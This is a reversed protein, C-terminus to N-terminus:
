RVFMLSCVGYLIYLISKHRVHFEILLVAAEVKLPEKVDLQEENALLSPLSKLILAKKSRTSKSTLPILDFWIM